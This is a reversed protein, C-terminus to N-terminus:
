EAVRPPDEEKPPLVAPVDPAVPVDKKELDKQERTLQESRLATDKNSFDDIRFMTFSGVFEIAIPFPAQAMTTEIYTGSIKKPGVERAGYVAITKGGGGLLPNSQLQSIIAFLTGDLNTDERLASDYNAEAIIQHEGGVFTPMKSLPLKWWDKGLASLEKDDPTFLAHTERTKEVKEAFPLTVDSFQLQVKEEAIGTTGDEQLGEKAGYEIKVLRATTYKMGARKITALFWKNEVSALAKEYSAVDVVPTTDINSIIDGEFIGLQASLSPDGMKTIVVGQPKGSFLSAYEPGIPGVDFPAVRDAGRDLRVRFMPMVQHVVLWVGGIDKGITGDATTKQFFSACSPRATGLTALLLVLAFSGLPLIRRNM